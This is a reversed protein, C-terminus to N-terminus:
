FSGGMVGVPRGAYGMAAQQQQAAAAAAAVGPAAAQGAQTAQQQAPSLMGGVVAGKVACSLAGTAAHQLTTNKTYKGALWLAAGVTGDVGLAGIHPVQVRNKEIYGLAAATGLATITHKESAAAMLTARSFRRGGAAAMAGLRRASMAARSPARVTIAATRPPM